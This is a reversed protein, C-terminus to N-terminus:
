KSRFRKLEELFWMRSQVMDQGPCDIQYPQNSLLSKSACYDIFDETTKIKEKFHDYKKLIHEIAEPPSHAKGNRIFACDSNQITQILHDIEAQLLKDGAVAPIAYCCLMSIIIIKIMKKFEQNKSVTYMKKGEDAIPREFLRKLKFYSDKEQIKHNIRNM